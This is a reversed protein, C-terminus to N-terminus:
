DLVTGVCGSAGVHLQCGTPAPAAQPTNNITPPLLQLARPPVPLPPWGWATMRNPNSNLDECRYQCSLQCLCLSVWKCGQARVQSFPVKEKILFPTEKRGEERGEQPPPLPCYYHALSLMLSSIWNSQGQRSMSAGTCIPCQPQFPRCVYNWAGRGIDIKASLINECPKERQGLLINIKM